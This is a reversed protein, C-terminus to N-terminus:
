GLRVLNAVGEADVPISALGGFFGPRIAPGQLKPVAENNVAGPQIGFMGRKRAFYYGVAGLALVWWYKKLLSM